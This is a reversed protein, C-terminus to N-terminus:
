SRAWTITQSGREPRRRNEQHQDVFNKSMFSDYIKESVIARSCASCKQGQHASPPKHSAKSRAADM